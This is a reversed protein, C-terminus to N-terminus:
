KLISKEIEFGVDTIGNLSVVGDVAGNTRMAHSLQLTYVGSTPFVINEKYWLKNEKISGYGKGLWTGDPMAMEYELTDRVSEGSPFNIEAILYLNNYAFTQDNRINIFMNYRETSDLEAFTFQVISDKLWAGNETSKYETKVTTTNCSFVLLLLM